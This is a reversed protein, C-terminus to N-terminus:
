FLAFQRVGAPASLSFYSMSFYAYALTPCVLHGSWLLAWIPYFSFLVLLVM